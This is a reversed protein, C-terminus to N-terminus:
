VFYDKRDIATNIGPCKEFLYDLIFDTSMIEDHQHSKCYKILAAQLKKLILGFHQKIETSDEATCYDMVPNTELEEDNSLFIDDIKYEISSFIEHCVRVMQEMYKKKLQKLEDNPIKNAVSKSRLDTMIQGMMEYHPIFYPSAGCGELMHQYIRYKQNPCWIIYHKGNLANVHDKWYRIALFVEMESQLSPAMNQGQNKTFETIKSMLREDNMWAFQEVPLICNRQISLDLWELKVVWAGTISAYLVKESRCLKPAILHTISKQKVDATYKQYFDADKPLVKGGMKNIFLLHQKSCKKGKTQKLFASLCNEYQKLKETDITGSFVVKLEHREVQVADNRVVTTVDASTTTTPVNVKRKKNYNGASLSNLNALFTNYKPDQQIQNSTNISKNLSTNAEMAFHEVIDDNDSAKRRRPNGAGIDISLVQRLEFPTIVILDRNQKKNYTPGSCFSLSVCIHVKPHAFFVVANCKTLIQRHQEISMAKPQNLSALPPSPPPAPFNANLKFGSQHQFPKQTTSIISHNVSHSHSNKGMIQSDLKSLQYSHYDLNENAIICEVIWTHTVVAVGRSIAAEYKDGQSHKCILVHCEHCKLSKQYVACTATLLEILATREEAKYQSVSMVYDQFLDLKTLPQLRPYHLLDCEVSELHGHKLCSYLYHISVVNVRNSRYRQIAKHKNSQKNTHKNHTNYQYKISHFSFYIHQMNKYTVNGTPEISLLVVFQTDQGSIVVGNGWRIMDKVTIKCFFFVFLLSTYLLNQSLAHSFFTCGTFVHNNTVEVQTLTLCKQILKTIEDNNKETTDAGVSKYQSAFVTGNKNLSRLDCAFHLAYLFFPTMEFFSPRLEKTDVVQQLQCCKTLWAFSVIPTRFSINPYSKDGKCYLPMCLASFLRMLCVSVDFGLLAIVCSGWFSVHKFTNLLDIPDQVQEQAEILRSEKPHRSQQLQPQPQPQPHPQPQHQSQLQLHSRLATTVQSSSHIDTVAENLERESFYYNHEDVAGYSTITDYFWQKKLIKIGWKRAYFVKDSTLTEAILHTCTNSLGSVYTGGLSAIKDKMENREWVFSLGVTIGTVSICCDTFIPLPYKSEPQKIGFLLCDWLWNVSVINIAYQVAAKHKENQSRGPQLEILHTVKSTFNGDFQAGLFVCLYRILKKTAGQIQSTCITCDKLVQRLQSLMIDLSVNKSRSNCCNQWSLLYPVGILFHSADSADFLSFYCNMFFEIEEHSNALVVCRHKAAGPVQLLFNDDVDAM